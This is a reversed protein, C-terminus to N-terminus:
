RNDGLILRLNDKLRDREVKDTLGSILELNGQLKGWIYEDISNAVFLPYYVCRSATQGIRHIRDQSQLFDILAFTFSFYVVNWAAFLDIGYGGTAEQAIFLKTKPDNQFSDVAKGREVQGIRGHIEVHIWEMQDAMRIINEIDEIWRAYIVIKEEEPLTQIVEKLLEIKTNEKFKVTEDDTYMFGDTIQSLKSMKALINSINVNGEPLELYKILDSAVREYMRIQDWFLNCYRPSWIKPPLDLCEEKKIRVARRFLKRRFEDEMDERIEYQPFRWGRDKFFRNRTQFYNTGFTAGGDMARYITFISAINNTIPTGSLFMSYPITDCLQTLASTRKANWSKIMTAEDCVIYDFGKSMLRSLLIGSTAGIRGRISDYTCAYIQGKKNIANLKSELPGILKICSFTTHKKAERVWTELVSLPCVVLMTRAKNSEYLTAFKSLAILTKGTGCESWDATKPESLHFELNRKQHERLETKILNIHQIYQRGGYILNM